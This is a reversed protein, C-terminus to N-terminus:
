GSSITRHHGAHAARSAAPKSQLDAGNDAGVGSGQAMAAPAGAGSALGCVVAVRGGVRTM